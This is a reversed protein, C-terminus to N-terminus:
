TEQPKRGHCASRFPFMPVFMYRNDYAHSWSRCQSSITNCVYLLTELTDQGNVFKWANLWKCSIYIYKWASEQKLLYTHIFFISFIYMEKDLFPNVSDNRTGRFIHVPQTCWTMHVVGVLVWLLPFLNIYEPLNLELVHILCISQKWFLSPCGYKVSVTEKEYRLETNWFLLKEQWSDQRSPLMQGPLCCEDSCSTKACEHCERTEANKWPSKKREKASM